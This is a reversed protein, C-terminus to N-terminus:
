KNAAPFQAPIVPGTVAGPEGSARMAAPWLRRRTELLLEWDRQFYPLLERDKASRHMMENVRALMILYALEPDSGPANINSAAIGVRRQIGDETSELWAAGDPDLSTEGRSGLEKVLRHLAKVDPILQKGIAENTLEHLADRYSKWQAGTGLLEDKPRVPPLPVPLEAFDALLLPRVQNSQAQLQELNAQHPLVNDAGPQRRLEHEPNFRGTVTYSGVFLALEHPRLLLPLLFKKSSFLMESGKRVGHSPNYTGPVQTFRFVRLQLAPHRRAYHTLSKSIAKPSTVGFDNIHDSRASGPFYFNLVEAAFDACNNTVGNYHNVNPRANLHIMFAVDQQLTTKLQFIYASRIFTSAFLYRWDGHQNASCPTTQCVGALYSERAHDQLLRFLAPWALLPRNREDEVGYLFLSLPVANWEFDQDEDLGKYMSIVSGAEGATCLRLKVPTEPCLRSLYIASHGSSIWQSLGEAPTESLLLGVDAHLSTCGFLFGVVIALTRLSGFIRWM